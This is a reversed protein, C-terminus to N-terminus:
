CSNREVVELDIVVNNSVSVRDRIRNMLMEAALKGSHRLNQNITTLNMLDAIELNDFGIVALDRPVNLGRDWAGKIMRVAITDSAAFVAEPREESFFVPDIGPDNSEHPIEVVQVHRDDLLVGAEVLRNRFGELRDETASVTFSQSSYTGIFGLKRYGKELLHEAAIRGGLVNDISVGNFGEYTQQVFVVQLGARTLRTRASDPIRLGIVILGDIWNETSLTDLYEELQRQSTVTYLIIEYDSAPMTDTIGRVREVFSERVFFPLLVGIRCIRTLSRAVMVPKPTFSLQDMTEYVRDRTEKNVMGPANMVRSVTSSSVGAQAAIEKITVARKQNTSM